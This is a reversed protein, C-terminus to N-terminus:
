NNNTNYENARRKIFILLPIIGFATAPCLKSSNKYVPDNIDILGKKALEIYVKDLEKFCYDFSEGVSMKRIKIRKGEKDYAKNKYHYISKM